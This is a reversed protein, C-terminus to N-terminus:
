SNLLRQFFARYRQFALRLDETSAHEGRAWSTELGQRTQTFRNTIEAVLDNVLADADAVASRPDDVFAIQIQQWRGSYAGSLADPLLEDDGTPTADDSTVAGSSTSGSDTGSRTPGSDRIDDSTQKTTLSETNM